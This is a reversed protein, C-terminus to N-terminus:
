NKSNLEREIMLLRNYKATREGRCPAGTKILGTNLAVALDAITVDETEGSRHSMITKYGNAKALKIAEITESLSGIQNPKILIANAAKMSIGKSLRESNTVFLDDGVLLVKDALRATIKKWGEWDEEDLPDEISFIPYKDIMKEWHEILEDSTFERGSKPQTYFGSGKSENKWESAAVDLSIMFDKGAGYSYGSKEIAECIVDLVAEDSDLDPAFGGEDGVAVSLNRKKLIGKLTQYVECCQRLGESFCGAGSPIIMFEQVDVNNSSHAGGNLINMMPRPLTNGSCGGVYRYLDMDLSKAAATAAALSVGLIANAGLKGKNATGDELLMRRDVNAQDYVDIGCLVKNIEENIHRVAVSVGSGNYRGDRDRLEVAEFAGTSAGSPVAAGAKTGDELTVMAYVTPNGRSDIIEIGEVQSIKNKM